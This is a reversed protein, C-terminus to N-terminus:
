VRLSLLDKNVGARGREASSLAEETGHSPHRDTQQFDHPFVVDRNQSEAPGIYPAPPCVWTMVEQSLLYTRESSEELEPTEM